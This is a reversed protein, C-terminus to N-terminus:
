AATELLSDYSAPIEHDGSLLATLLHARLARFSDAYTGCDLAYQLADDLLDVIRLQDTLPPLPFAVRALIGLNIHPNATAANLGKLHDVMKSCRFVHFIFEPTTVDTVRLRMQSQSIVYTPPGNKPILGVQGLTGRQTFIVDGHRALNRSLTESKDTSVYVFERGIEFGDRPMNTGRIVPVGTDLYDKAGLNSGFPGGILGRKEAVDAVAVEPWDAGFILSLACGDVSDLSRSFLDDAAEIAQDLAGILDVIRHQTAVPPLSIPISQFAGVSITKRRLVSGTCRVAMAEHFAPSTTLLKMYSPLLRQADIKFVPFTQPTVYTGAFGAGVVTSPAEFATIVRYVLDDEELEMLKTFKMSDGRVPERDVLGWGSRQVGVVRYEQDAIVPTFNKRKRTLERLEVKPWAESM